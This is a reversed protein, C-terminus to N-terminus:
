LLNRLSEVFLLSAFIICVIGVIRTERPTKPNPWSGRSYLQTLYNASICHNMGFIFFGVAVQMKRSFFIDNGFFAILLILVNLSHFTIREVSIRKNIKAEMDDELMVMGKLAVKTIPNM